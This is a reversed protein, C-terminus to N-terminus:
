PRVKLVDVSRGNVLISDKTSTRLPNANYGQQADRVADLFVSRLYGWRELLLHAMCHYVVHSLQDPNAAIDTESCQIEYGDRGAVCSYPLPVGCNQCAPPPIRSWRDKNVLTWDLDPLPEPARGAIVLLAGMSALLASGAVGPDTLLITTFGSNTYPM